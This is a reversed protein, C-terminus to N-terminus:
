RSQPGLQAQILEIETEHAHVLRQWRADGIEVPRWALLSVLCTDAAYGLPEGPMVRAHTRLVLREPSAGVHYDVAQREPILDIRVWSISGDFLSEGSLLGPAAERRNSLGLNWRSLGAATSLHALARSSPAHCLRATAHSLATM